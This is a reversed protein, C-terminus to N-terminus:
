RSASWPLDDVYAWSRRHISTLGYGRLAMQHSPSPYGKNREFGYAPFHDSEGRMLRDRLVKALVSAASISACRADGKVVPVV